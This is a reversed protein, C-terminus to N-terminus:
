VKKNVKLGGKVAGGKAVRLDRVTVKKTAKAAGAKKAM